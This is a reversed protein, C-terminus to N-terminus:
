GGTQAPLQALAARVHELAADADLGLQASLAAYHRAAAAVRDARGPDARSEPRAVVTGHRRRSTVLRERELERYARAVTGPALGLDSALQRIAPLQTDPPLVGSLITRAIQGRLQEYPPVAASHDIEVIM